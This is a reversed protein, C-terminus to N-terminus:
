VGRSTMSPRCNGLARGRDDRWTQKVLETSPESNQLHAGHQQPAPTAGEHERFQDTSKNAAPLRTSASGTSASRSRGGNGRDVRSPYATRAASRACSGAVSSTMPSILAPSVSSLIGDMDASTLGDGDHRSRGNRCTSVRHHHDFVSRPVSLLDFDGLSDRAPLVNNGATRLSAPFNSSSRPTRRVSASM